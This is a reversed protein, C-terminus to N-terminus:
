LLKRGGFGLAREQGLPIYSQMAPEERLAFRRADEVVAVIQACPMTDMLMCEGIADRNPWLTRAMTENVVQAGGASVDTATFARGRLVRTGATAFYDDSVARIYPGGGPLTPISDRGPM